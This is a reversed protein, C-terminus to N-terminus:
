KLDYSWKRGWEFVKRRSPPVFDSDIWYLGITFLMLAPALTDTPIMLWIPFTIWSLFTMLRRLVRSISITSADESSVVESDEESAGSQIKSWCWRVTPWLSVIWCIAGFSGLIKFTDVVDGIIMTAFGLFFASLVLHYKSVALVEQLWRSVVNLRTWLWSDMPRTLSDIRQTLMLAFYLWISFLEIDNTLVVRKGCKSCRLFLTKEIKNDLVQLKIKQIDGCLCKYGFTHIGDPYIPKFSSM